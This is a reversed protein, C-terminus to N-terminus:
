LFTREAVMRRRWSLGNVKELQKERTEMDQSPLRVEPILSGGVGVYKAIDLLESSEEAM